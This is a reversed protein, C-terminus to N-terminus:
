KSLPWRKLISLTLSPDESGLFRLLKLKINFRVYTTAMKFPMKSVEYIETDEPTDPPMVQIKM